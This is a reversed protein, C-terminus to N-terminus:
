GRRSHGRLHRWAQDGVRLAGVALLGYVPIAVWLIATQGDSSNRYAFIAAIEVAVTGATVAAAIVKARKSMGQIALYALGVLIGGLLLTILWAIV